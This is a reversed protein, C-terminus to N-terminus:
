LLLAFLALLVLVSVHLIAATAPASTVPAATQDLAFEPDWLIRVLRNLGTTTRPCDFAFNFRVVGLGTGTLSAPLANARFFSGAVRRDSTAAGTATVSDNYFCTVQRNFTLNNLEGLKISDDTTGQVTPPIDGVNGVTAAAIAWVQIAVRQKSDAACGTISAAALNSDSFLDWVRFTATSPTASFDSVKFDNNIGKIDIDCKASWERLPRGSVIPNATTNVDKKIYCFQNYLGTSETIGVSYFNSGTTINVPNFTAQEPTVFGLICDTAAARNAATYCLTDTGAVGSPDQFGATGDRDCTIGMGRYLWVIGAGVYRFDATPNSASAPNAIWKAGAAAAFPFQDGAANRLLGASAGFFGQVEGSPVQGLPYRLRYCGGGTVAAANSGYCAAVNADYAGVSGADALVLFFFFFPDFVALM